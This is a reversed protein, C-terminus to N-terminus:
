NQNNGKECLPDTSYLPQKEFMEKKYMQYVGDSIAKKVRNGIEIMGQYRARSTEEWCYGEREAEDVFISQSSIKEEMADEIMKILIEVDKFKTELIEKSNLENSEKKNM